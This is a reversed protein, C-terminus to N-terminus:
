FGKWNEQELQLFKQKGENNMIKEKYEFNVGFPKIANKVSNVIIQKVAPPVLDFPWALTAKSKNDVIQIDQLIGLDILSLNIAPHKVTKLTELIKDHM